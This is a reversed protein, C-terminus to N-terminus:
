SVDGRREELLRCWKRIGQFDRLGEKRARPLCTDEWQQAPRIENNSEDGNGHSESFPVDKQM